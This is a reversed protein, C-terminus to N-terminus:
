RPTWGAVSLAENWGAYRPDRYWRAPAVVPNGRRGALWGAWWSFTSNAIILRTARTLCLFDDVTAAPTAALPVFETPVGLQLHQECWAPDDSFVVALGVPAQAAHHELARRYYAPELAGLTRAPDRGTVYDTRRVHLAVCDPRALTALRKLAAPSAPQRASLARDLQDAVPAFFREGQWYGELYVGPGRCSLFSQLGQAPSRPRLVTGPHTRRRLRQWWTLAFPALDAATAPPPALGLAPLQYSRRSGGSGAFWSLDASLGTGLRTALAQGAALQFLQNGLGCKFRVVVM